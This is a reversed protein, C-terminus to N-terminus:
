LESNKYMDCIIREIPIDGITRKFFLTEIDANSVARLAPLLLLLKGFRFPQGPYACTIYRNLTLQASDQLVSVAPLDRVSVGNGEFAAVNGRYARILKESNRPANKTINAYQFPSTYFLMYIKFFFAKAM